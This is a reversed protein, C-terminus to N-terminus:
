TGGLTGLLYVEAHQTFEREFDFRMGAFEPLELAELVATTPQCYPRIGTAAMLLHELTAYSQEVTLDPVRASLCKALRLNLAHLKSKTDVITEPSVNQELVAALDRFLQCFRGRNALSETLARALPKAAPAGALTGPLAAFRASLDDVWAEHDALLLQLLIAERSEFYRYINPKSIGAVRAIANLGTDQLGEADLLESAARLIADRREQKQEPRRARQWTPPTPLETM